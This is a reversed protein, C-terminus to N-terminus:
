PPPPPPPPRRSPGGPPPPPPALAARGRRVEASEPGSPPLLVGIRLSAATVGPEIEHGLRELYAILAAAQDQTLRYRPMAQQLPSGGADIGLTIARKLTRRDYAPHRRSGPQGVEYPRTLAEWTLDSPTIGGEPRGRGDLGHCGGCPLEAASVETGDEGGIVATIEPGAASRGTRYIRRGERALDGPPTAPAAGAVAAILAAGGGVAAVIALARSVRRNREVKITCCLM